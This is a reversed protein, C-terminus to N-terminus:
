INGVPVQNSGPLKGKVCINKPTINYFSGGYSVLYKM